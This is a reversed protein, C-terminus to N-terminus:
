KKRRWEEAVAWEGEREGVREQGTAVRVENLGGRDVEIVKGMKLALNLPSFGRARCVAM